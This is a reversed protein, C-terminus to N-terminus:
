MRYSLTVGYTAPRGTYGGITDFAAVQNTFYYSNTVNKGWVMMRWPGQKPGIGARLDLTEYGPLVFLKPRNGVAAPPNIDGGVVSPTDSRMSLSFGLSAELSGVAFSYDGNTGVQWEPAFPVRSGDFVSDVGAANIGSYRDITGQIYTAAANFVLGATPSATLELEFGKVTSKPVNALSDLIGFPLVLLKTRLQKDSYDYYFAAANFQLARNILKMKFGAEYALVSEQRVPLYQVFASSATTPFGGAKYGRAVNAYLLIDSTPKWDVGGRWSVNDEDLESRFVGPAGPPTGGVANPLNNVTYCSGSPYAGFAGGLVVDYTFSGLQDPRGTTEFTCSTDDRKSRTYRAGAKITVTPLVAFEGNAFFAYNTMKQDTYYSATTIPYGLSGLFRFSSSNPFVVTNSQYVTSREFNGGIVWRFGGADANAIRLEQSFSRIRGDDKSLDLTRAPLGDGDDRQQQRYYTYASISTLTAVEGLQVDGRLAAQGFRNNAYPLGETWDAARPKAPSFADANVAPDLFEIPSQSNYGYSQPAQPQSRDLWGNVNLEFKIRDSPKFDVLLRGMYTRVAGNRDDPRSNSIQWGDAREVQGSLRASLTDTMPGSVFADILVDNFRGYSISGGAQLTDTPKAAIYNIAGGTANQGFLTGQPGKLVEVRELDYSSHRTLAPFPLPIEDQYVSVTPYAALSTEYFGVGRLTYVPTGNASNAFSFGPVALALDQVNTIGREKLADGGLATVTLGVRNISETRKQATVVIDELTSASANAADDQPSEDAIESSSPAVTSAPSTSAEAAIAQCDASGSSLVAIVACSAGALRRLNRKV